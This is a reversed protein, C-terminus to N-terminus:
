AAGAMMTRPTDERVGTVAGACLSKALMQRPKELGMLQLVTPAINALGCHEHLSWTMSDMVLCPVPYVTHQTNRANTRPNRIEECNGHDSTLIVSYGGAEAAQIVRGAERDLTEVAKIVAEPVATHGVMDGNAFNVLIFAYEEARIANIATDAVEQASMEPQLDYTAVKPSPILTQTEGPFPDSRGGNFFYTVHAYKETEACRFQKLGANSIAEGLTAAPIEPEYAYPLDFARNYPMMCTVTPRPANHRDFDDFMALGLAAIIQRPRDKRYNFCILQDSAQLPVAAPLIAPEIFEDTIGRGYSNQVARQATHFREGDNLTLARWARQTRDWRQDRDLAYYRGTVTACAGGAELLAPEVQDLFSLASRPPSDRGDTVVHLLPVAGHLACLRILALLHRIHSHVGGDSLLGFLHVPRRNSAATRIAKTLAPNNSFEGSAIADDIRVLDQRIVSGCGMTLHGVASNGMQGDPLGVARGSAQLTTLPYAAFYHDLLPTHADAIANNHQDPNIGLGDLVILVVPRRPADPSYDM